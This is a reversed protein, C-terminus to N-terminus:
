IGDLLRQTNAFMEKLRNEIQEDSLAAIETASTPGYAECLIQGDADDIRFSTGQDAFVFAFRYPVTGMLGSLINEIRLAQEQQVNLTETTM